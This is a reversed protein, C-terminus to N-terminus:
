GLIIRREGKMKMKEFNKKDRELMVKEEQGEKGWKVKKKGKIVRM